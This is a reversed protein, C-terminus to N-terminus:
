FYTDDSCFLLQVFFVVNVMIKSVCNGHQQWLEFTCELALYCLGTEIPKLKKFDTLINKEHKEAPKSKKM